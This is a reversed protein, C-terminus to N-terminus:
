YRVSYAGTKLNIQSGDDVFSDKMKGYFDELRTNTVQVTRYAQELYEEPHAEILLKNQGIM